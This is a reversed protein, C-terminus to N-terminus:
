ARGALLEDLAPFWTDRWGIVTHADPNMVFRLPYGHATLAAAMARNNALNEEIAGCTMLVPVPRQGDPGAMRAVETCIRDFPAWASEQSDFEWTFFSGSHLVLADLAAPHRRHLYLLALAGLSAGLGVVRDCNVQETVAPLLVGALHDAYDPTAAYWDQRLGPAPDVLVVRLPDTTAHATAWRLIDGRDALDSGDHVVLLPAATTDDLGVPSWLRVPVATGLLDPVTVPRTTGRPPTSLWTPERYDPFRIESKDGFPDTVRRPNTPDATRTPEGDHGRLGLQYEIRWAAPRPFDLSWVGDAFGYDRAGPAVWDVELRVGAWRHDPDPVTFRVREASVVPAPSDTGGHAVTRSVPDGYTMAGAGGARLLAAVATPDVGPM